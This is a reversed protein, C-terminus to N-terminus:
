KVITQSIFRKTHYIFLYIYIYINLIESINSFVFFSSFRSIKRFYRENINLHGCIKFYIDYFITKIILCITSYILFLLLVFEHTISTKIVIKLVFFCNTSIMTFTIALLNRKDYIFIREACLWLWICCMIVVNLFIMFCIKLKYYTIIKLIYM